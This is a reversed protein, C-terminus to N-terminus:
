LKRSDLFIQEQVRRLGDWIIRARVEGIGAVDDLEEISANKFYGAPKLVKEGFKKNHKRSSQSDQKFLRYGRPSIVMEFADANPSYGLISCINVLNMLEDYSLQRLKKWFKM